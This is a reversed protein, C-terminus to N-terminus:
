NRKPLLTDILLIVLSGSYIRFMVTAEFGKWLCNLLVKCHMLRVKCQLHGALFRHSWHLSSDLFVTFIFAFLFMINSYGEVIIILVGGILIAGEKTWKIMNQSM